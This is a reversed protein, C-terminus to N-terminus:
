PNGPRGSKEPQGQGVRDSITKVHINRIFRYGAEQDQACLLRSGGGQKLVQGGVGGHDSRGRLFELEKGKVEIATQVPVPALEPHLRSGELPLPGKLGRGIVQKMRVDRGPARSATRVGPQDDQQTIRHRAGKRVLPVFDPKAVFLQGQLGGEGGFRFPQPSRQGRRVTQEGVPMATIARAAAVGPLDFSPQGVKGGM